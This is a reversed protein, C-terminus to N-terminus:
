QQDDVPRREIRRPHKTMLTDLVEDLMHVHDDFGQFQSKVDVLYRNLSDLRRALTEAVYLALDPNDRLFELSAGAVRFSSPIRVRVTATHEVDLLISMEGFIAGYESVDAILKGDKLVDVHGDILFYLHDARTGQEILVTGAAFQKVPLRDIVDSLASM